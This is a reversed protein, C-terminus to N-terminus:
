GLTLYIQIILNFNRGVQLIFFQMKNLKKKGVILHKVKTTLHKHNRTKHRSILGEKIVNNFYKRVLQKRCKM